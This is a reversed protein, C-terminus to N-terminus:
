EFVVLNQTVTIQLKNQTVVDDWNSYPQPPNYQTQQIDYAGQIETMVTIANTAAAKVGDDTSRAGVYFDNGPWSVHDWAVTSFLVCDSFDDGQEEYHVPPCLQPKNENGQTLPRVFYSIGNIEHRENSCERYPDYYVAKISTFRQGHERLIRELAQKLQAGLTGHFIGAFQGCGLGPITIFAKKGNSKATDNAYQLVPLLRREYLKAYATSDIQNKDVVEDWDAPTNRYGCRVLAGPTFLLHGAFPTDYIKPRVHKGDDYIEVPMCISIDGLIKLESLTWDKGDGRVSSEAFIQPIKTQMLLEIFENATIAHTDKGQLKEKLYAGPKAILNALNSQIHDYTTKHLTVIYKVM